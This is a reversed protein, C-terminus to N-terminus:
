MQALYERPSVGYASRFAKYFGSYDAFGCRMAVQMLPFGERMLNRARIMRKQLLMQYISAGTEEKFKRELYYKSLFAAQAVADLSIAEDIHADLYSSVQQVLPSVHIEDLAASDATGRAIRNLHVLLSAALSRCLLERGFAEGNSASLLESFLRTIQARVAGGLRIAGERGGSFCASLDNKEDSLREVFSRSLWFVIREYPETGHVFLPRHLQNPSILLLDGPQEAFSASEIQYSLKGSLLLSCEFFDHFHLAIQVGNNGTFHFVEFDERLMHQRLQLETLTQEM